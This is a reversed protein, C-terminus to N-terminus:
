KVLTVPIRSQHLVKMAVSGMLMSAVKGRGHTGMIIKDFRGRAAFAVIKEAPDGVLVHAEYAIGARDLLRKAAALAAEGHERQLRKIEEPKMFRRLEIADAEEQVNVLQIAMPDRGKTLAIVHRVARESTRSGDVPVLAKLL